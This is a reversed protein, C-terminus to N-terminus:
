GEWSSASFLERLRVARPFAGHGWPMQRWKGQGRHRPTAPRAYGQPGQQRRPSHDHPEKCRRTNPGRSEAATRDGGRLVVPGGAVLGLSGWGGRWGLLSSDTLSDRGSRGRGEGGQEATNQNSGKGTMGVLLLSEAKRIGLTRGPRHASGSQREARDKVVYKYRPEVAQGLASRPPRPGGQM